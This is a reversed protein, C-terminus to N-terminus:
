LSFSSQLWATRVEAQCPTSAAKGKKEYTPDPIHLITSHM